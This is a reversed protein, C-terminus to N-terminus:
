TQQPPPPEPRSSLRMRLSTLVSSAPLRLGGDEQVEEVSLLARDGCVVLAADGRTGVVQGPAGFYPGEGRSSRWVTLRRAGLYTFAGPYPESQARIWNHVATAPSGWDIVGDSPIRMGCYSAGELAQPTPTLTGALLSLYSSELIDVAADELRELVKGVGDDLGVPVSRQDWIDGEDLGPVISFLSLGIEEDGNIMAWVVPAFGRYRPLFSPHFGVVGRPVADLIASPLIWYWGSVVCLEPQLEAMVEQLQSPKTLVPAPVGSARAAVVLEDLVSRTDGRDDITVLGVLADPELRNMTEFCRLGLSKSGIFMVRATVHDDGRPAPARTGEKATRM